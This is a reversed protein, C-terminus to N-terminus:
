ATGLHASVGGSGVAGRRGDLSFAGAGFAAVQLLGGIIAINKLFHILQNQDAFNHHFGLAAALTFIALVAAVPRTQWGLVLLAGGGVEVVVAILYAILPAPLGASAIYGQTMAPAFIKGVGSFLFLLAILLRGLAAVYSANTTM